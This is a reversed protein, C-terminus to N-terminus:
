SEGRTRRSAEEMRNSYRTNAEELAAPVTAKDTFVSKLAADMAGQWSDVGPLDPLVVQVYSPLADIFGKLFAEKMAPQNRLDAHTDPLSGLTAMVDGMRTTGRDTKAM